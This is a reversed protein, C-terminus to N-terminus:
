ERPMGARALGDALRDMVARPFPWARHAVRVTLSPDQRLLRDV